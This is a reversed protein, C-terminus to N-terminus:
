TTVGQPSPMGWKGQVKIFAGPSYRNLTTRISPAPLGTEETLEEVSMLGRKLAEHLQAKISMGVALAPAATLDTKDFRVLTDTFTLKFMFPKHLKGFNAKRHYLGVALSDDGPEQASRVEWVSRSINWWYASGFPSKNEANKAVHAIVLSTTRLSRLAKFMRLVPGSQEPEGGCAPGASDVVIVDVKQEAVVRQLEAIDDALAQSCFRYLIPSPTQIELGEQVARVRGQFEDFSTEFDLYLVGGPEPEWGNHSEPTSILVSIYTALYSKGTGGHGFIISPHAQLLIPELQYRSREKVPEDGVVLVPEGQRYAELVKVCAQELVAYWDVAEMRQTLVKALTTRATTSTLNLRAQHLHSVYGPATTKILIEGSVSHHSDEDLRDIRIGLQTSEWRLVYVGGSSKIEPAEM